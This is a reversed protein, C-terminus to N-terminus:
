TSMLHRWAVQLLRCSKPKPMLCFGWVIPILSVPKCRGQAVSTTNRTTGVRFSWTFMALALVAPDSTGTAFKLGSGVGYAGNLLVVSFHASGQNMVQTVNFRVTINDTGARLVLKNDWGATVRNRMATFFANVNPVQANVARGEVFFLKIGVNLLNANPVLQLDFKGLGTGTLCNNASQAQLPM